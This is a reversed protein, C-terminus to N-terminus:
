QSLRDTVLSLNQALIVLSGYSEPEETEGHCSRAELAKCYSNAIFSPFHDTIIRSTFGPPPVEGLCNIPIRSETISSVIMGCQKKSHEIMRTGTMECM